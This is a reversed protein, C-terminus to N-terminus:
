GVSSNTKLEYNKKLKTKCCFGVSIPFTIEMCGLLYSLPDVQCGCLFNWRDVMVCPVRYEDCYPQYLANESSSVKPLALNCPDCVIACCIAIYKNSLL